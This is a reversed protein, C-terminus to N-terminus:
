RMSLSLFIGTTIAFPPMTWVTTERLTVAYGSVAHTVDAQWGFRIRHSLPVGALTKLGLWSVTGSSRRPEDVGFGQVALRGVRGVACIALPEYRYCPSASVLYLNSQFGSSDSGQWSQPLAFEVGFQLAFHSAILAAELTGAGDVHPLRGYGMQTGLAYTYFHRPPAAGNAPDPVARETPAPLAIAPAAEKPEPLRPEDVRLAEFLQIQVAVAFALNGILATCDGDKAEIQREGESNGAPDRWSISGVVGKPGESSRIEIRHEALERFPDFGLRELVARRFLAPDNCVANAPDTSFSLAVTVHAPETPESALAIANSLLGLLGVFIPSRRVIARRYSLVRRTPAIGLAGELGRRRCEVQGATKM